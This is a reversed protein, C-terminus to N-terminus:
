SLNGTTGGDERARGNERVKGKPRKANDRGQTKAGSTDAPAVVRKRRVKARAVKPRSEETEIREPVDGTTGTPSAQVTGGNGAQHDLGETNGAAQGTLDSQLQDMAAIVGAIGSESPGEDNPTSHKRLARVVDELQSLIENQRQVALSLHLSNQSQQRQSQKLDRSAEGLNRVVETHSQLHVGYEAVASALGSLARGMNGSPADAAANAVLSPTTVKENPSLWLTALVISIFILLPVGLYLLVTRNTLFLIPRAVPGLNKVAVGRVASPSVQFPDVGSNDGKTIFVLEGMKGEIGVVRHVANSPMKLRERADAPVGFVIVDGIQIQTPPIAKNVLLDGAHFAPEMSTGRVVLFPSSTGLLLMLGLYGAGILLLAVLALNLKTHPFGRNM